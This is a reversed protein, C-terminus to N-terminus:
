DGVLNYADKNDSIVAGDAATTKSETAAGGDYTTASVTGVGDTATTEDGGKDYGYSGSLVLVGGVSKGQGTLMQGSTNYADTTTNGDGDTVTLVDGLADFTAGDQGATGSSGYLTTTLLDGNDDYTEGTVDGAGDTATLVDGDGDYTYAESGVPVNSVDYSTTKTVEDDGNYANITVNGIPDITKTLNGAPDYVDVTTEPASTNADAVSQIVQAATNLAFTTVFGRADTTSTVFSAADYASSTTYGLPDTTSLVRGDGDNTTVTTQPSPGGAGVTATLLFGNADYTFAEGDKLVDADDYTAQAVLQRLADYTYVTQNGDGDTTSTMLGGSWTYTTTVASAGTGVTTSLPEGAM